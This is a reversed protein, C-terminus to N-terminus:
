LPAAARSRPVGGRARHIRAAMRLGLHDDGLFSGVRQEVSAVGVRLVVHVAREGLARERRLHVERVQREHQREADRSSHCAVGSPRVGANPERDHRKRDRHGAQKPHSAGGPGPDPRELDQEREGRAGQEERGAPDVDRHKGQEERGSHERISSFGPAGPDHPPQRERRLLGREEHEREQDEGDCVAGGPTPEERRHTEDAESEGKGEREPVHSREDLVRDQEGETGAVACGRGLGRGQPRQEEIEERRLPPTM